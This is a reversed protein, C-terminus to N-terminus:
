DEKLFEPADMEPDVANPDEKYDLISNRIQGDQGPGQGVVWVCTKGIAKNLINRFAGTDTDIEIDSPLGVSIFFKKLKWAVSEVLTIHDTVKKDQYQGDAFEAKIRLQSNGTSAQVDEISTIKVTYAGADYVEFSKDEVDKLNSKM